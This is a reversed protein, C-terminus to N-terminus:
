SSLMSSNIMVQMMRKLYINYRFPIADILFLAPCAVILSLQQLVLDTDTAGINLWLTTIFWLAPNLSSQVVTNTVM